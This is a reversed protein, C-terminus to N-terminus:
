DNTVLLGFRTSGDGYDTLFSATPESELIWHPTPEAVRTMKLAENGDDGNFVGPGDAGHNRMWEGRTEPWANVVSEAQALSLGTNEALLAVFQEKTAAM